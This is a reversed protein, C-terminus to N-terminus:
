GFPTRVTHLLLVETLSYANSIRKKLSYRRVVAVFFFESRRAEGSIRWMDDSDLTSEWLPYQIRTGSRSRVMLRHRRGRPVGHTSLTLWDHSEKTSSAGQADVFRSSVTAALHAAQCALPVQADPGADKRQQLDACVRRGRTSEKRIAGQAGNSNEGSAIAQSPRRLQM